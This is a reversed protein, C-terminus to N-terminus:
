RCPDVTVLGLAEPSDPERAPIVRSGCYKAMNALDLFAQRTYGEPTTISWWYEEDQPTWSPDAIYITTMLGMWPRWHDAAYQYAQVLYKAQTAEDVAYWAYSANNGPNTHWGMELIAMQRGADGNEVMIKRMDEVRRFTFFRQSGRAVAEDPSVDPPNNYGPANVGVVDVYQQFGADYMAQLYIDDPQATTDYTGTPALGASIIIAKPDAARIAQSCAALLNVYAAADPPRNGWERTLNPENWIQYAAIHGRYRGAVTGCFTAWDNLDDPPADVFDVDKHGALGPHSWDPADSLRVVLKLGKQEVESVVEDARKFDWRRREPEFDEWAFVQKVHSFVMLRTWDLFLSAKNKDWWLFEHIGYTLSTFPPNTIAAAQFPDYTTLRAFMLVFFLTLGAITAGIRVKLGSSKPRLLATITRETTPQAM